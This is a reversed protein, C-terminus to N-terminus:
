TLPVEVLSGEISDSGTFYGGTNMYYENYDNDSIKFSITASVSLTQKGDGIDGGSDWSGNSPQIRVAYESSQAIQCNMANSYGTYKSGIPLIIKLAREPTCYESTFSITLSIIHNGTGDLSSTPTISVNTAGTSNLANGGGYKGGTEGISEDDSPADGEVDLPTPLNAFYQDFNYDMKGLENENEYYKKNAQVHSSGDGPISFTDVGSTFEINDEFSATEALAQNVALSEVQDDLQRELEMNKNRTVLSINLIMMLLLSMITLVAMAVVCEVLTFGKKSIFRRM